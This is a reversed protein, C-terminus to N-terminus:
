INKFKQEGQVTQKIDTWWMKKYNGVLPCYGFQKNFCSFGEEKDWRVECVGVGDSVILFDNCDEEPPCEECNHWVFEMKFKKM